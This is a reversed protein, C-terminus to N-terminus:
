AEPSNFLLSKVLQSIFPYTFRSEQWLMLQVFFAENRTVLFEELLAQGEEMINNRVENCPNLFLIYHELTSIVPM